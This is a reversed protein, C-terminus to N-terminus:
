LYKLLSTQLLLATTQLTAQLSTQLALIQTAVDEPAAGEVSQLLNQLTADSQTHREKAANLAVQAGALEGQIDSVHQETPTGVLATGLRQRLEAYRAQADPDTDSFEATAFIAFTQVTVRLAHENARVGYSVTQSRDARALATSRPDDTGGDGVYWSVTDADTGDVLAIATEPPSGSVRQPPRSDDIDFFDNGAAVASAATLATRALTGLASSLANRLNTATGAATGAITFQGPGPTASTTATLTLDETSGDPLTLVFRATEGDNPIAGLDVALSAPSGSPGTATSGALNSVVGALKFGFPSTDEEDLSVTTAVPPTGSGVLLRGLGALGLDARRREDMVQKFGARLGDGNIIPDAAEVPPQDVSRGSFLYREDARTNLLSLMQDLLQRANKQDQTQVDGHLVFQSQLIQMKTNQGVTSIQQLATQMLELRVGGQTITQQFGSIASLQSRLGVTLGRDLGLGAYTAAKKGSGLQRQLDDLQRRMDMVAQISMSANTGVGSVSM